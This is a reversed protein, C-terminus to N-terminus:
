KHYCDAWSRGYGSVEAKIQVPISGHPPCWEFSTAAEIAHSVEDVDDEPVEFVFEDHVWIRMMRAIDDPLRLACEMTLDRAAGQGMLAPGQTHARRPNCHMIRGFGNDLNGAKAVTRVWERWQVLGPFMMGLVHDFQAAEAESVGGQRAIKDLGMGYNWGHGMPKAKERAPNRVLPGGWLAAAIESHLDRSPDNFVALYAPDQCHGAIARMDIQALDAALLVHGERARFVAREVVRGNRKGFVTLGPKTVSGRGSAQYTTIQPHVAGDAHVHELATGYVTRQGALDAVVTTLDEVAGGYRGGLALMGEGGFAVDGTKPTRPLDAPDVGLELFVQELRAKGAKTATPSEAPKGDAKTMPLGYRKILTRALDAKRGATRWYRQQLLPMDVEVGAVSMTTLIAHVRHERWVYANAAAAPLQHAALGANAEVDGRLYARYEPDDLPIKDFGGWRKALEPLHDVKGPLGRRECVADLGYRAMARAVANPSEDNEPPDLVAETIMTDMLQRRRALALLDLKGGAADLVPVDFAIINHGIALPASRILDSLILPDTTDAYGLGGVQAGGIRFFGRPDTYRGEGKADGTETDFVVPRAESVEV